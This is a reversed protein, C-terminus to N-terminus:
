FIKLQIKKAEEFRQTKIARAYIETTKEESHRFVNMVTKLPMGAMLKDDAGKHKLSYLNKDIKLTKKVYSEWLRTPYERKHMYPNPQMMNSNRCGYPKSNGFIFNERNSLNFEKLLEPLNGLLPVQCDNDTKSIHGPVEILNNDLNLHKVKLQLLEYPRIGCYYIFSCYVYFGFNEKKIHNFVIKHEEDTLPLNAFTKLEKKNRIERAPNTKIIEWEVLESFLSKIFGLNKNYSKPAWNRQSQMEDLFLKIHHREISTVLMRSIKQRIIFDKFFRITSGYDLISKPSLNPKKKDLAFDIADLVSMKVESNRQYLKSEPIWGKKLRIEIAKALALGEFKREELDLIKNLGDKVRIPNGGNFRFWVYWEKDSDPPYTKLKPQTWNNKM